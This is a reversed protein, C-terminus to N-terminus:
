VKWQYTGNRISSTLRRSSSKSICKLRSDKKSYADTILAIYSSNKRNGIYTIVSVWLQEPRNIDTFSVINNYKRFRPHSDTTIHYSQKPKILMHNARLIRFLKDRGVNLESLQKQLKDYLKRTGMRGM